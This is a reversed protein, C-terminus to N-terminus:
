RIFLSWSNLTAVGAFGINEIRLKWTGQASQGTLAALSTAPKFDGRYPITGATISTAAADSLVTRDYNSGSTTGQNVLTFEQGNPGILTIKLDAVSPHDLDFQLALQNITIASGVSISTTVSKGPAINVASTRRFVNDPVSINEFRIDGAESFLGNGNSELGNGFQDAIAPGVQVLYSGARTWPATDVRFQLNSANVPTVGLVKIRQGTTANTVLIDTRTLTAPNVPRDFNLTLGNVLTAVASAADNIPVVSTLGLGTRADDTTVTLGWSNLKGASGLVTDSIRLKWTGIASDSNYVALSSGIAPKFIGAYPGAGQDQFKVAQDDFRTNSLNAKTLTGAAVLQVIENTPSVLEIKLDSLRPHTLNVRVNLDRITLPRGGPVNLSFESTGNDAFPFGINSNFQFVAGGFFDHVEGFTLDGDQDLKRPVLDTVFPSVAVRVGGVGPASPFRQPTRLIVDFETPSNAVPVVSRIPVLAGTPGTVQLTEPLVKAPDPAINFKLRFQTVLGKTSETTSIGSVQLSVSPVSQPITGNFSYQGLSGYDSYGTGQIGKGTGDIKLYYRGATINTQIRADLADLPNDSAVLDGTENYLEALIDLNPGIAAPDIDIVLPGSGADFYFYDVDTNREIVGSGTIVTSSALTAATSEAPIDGHDDVRFDFGNGFAIVALDDEQNNANDYEGKSWQTLPIDYPAGMIAGWATNGTGHGPFYGEPPSIRGDHSLGLTHGVEHSAAMAINAPAGGTNDQFVFTPTDTDWSFSTLWAIGGPSGAWAGDGDEFVVRIGWQNDAGGTNRLREVGPDQTTVDVNFPSFDEAVHQWITQIDTLESATFSSPNSNTDYALSVIDEGGTSTNNWLTNSTTHGDFDLYIVHHADPRSHLFFTEELPFRAPPTPPVPGPDPNAPISALTAPVERAELNELRLASGKRGPRSISISAARPILSLWNRAM